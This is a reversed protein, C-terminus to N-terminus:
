KAIIVKKFWMYPGTISVYYNLAKYTGSVALACIAGGSFQDFKSEARALPAGLLKFLNLIAFSTLFTSVIKLRTVHHDGVTHQHHIALADILHFVKPQLKPNLHPSTVWGRTHRCDIRWGPSKTEYHRHPYLKSSNGWALHHPTLPHASRAIPVGRLVAACRGAVVPPWKHACPM